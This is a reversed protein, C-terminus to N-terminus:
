ECSFLIIGSLRQTNRHILLYVKPQNTTEVKRDIERLLPFVTLLHISLKFRNHDMNGLDPVDM